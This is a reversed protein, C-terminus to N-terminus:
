EVIERWNGFSPTIQAFPRVEAGDVGRYCAFGSAWQTVGGQRILQFKTTAGEAFFACMGACITHNV